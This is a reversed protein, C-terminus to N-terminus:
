ECDSRTFTPTGSPIDVRANSSRTSLEAKILLATMRGRGGGMGGPGGQAEQAAAPVAFMVLAAALIVKITQVSGGSTPSSCPRARRPTFARRGHDTLVRARIREGRGIAFAGM